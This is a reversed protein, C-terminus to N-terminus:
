RNYPMRIDVVGFQTAQSKQMYLQQAVRHASEAKIYIVLQM